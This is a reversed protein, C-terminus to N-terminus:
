WICYGGDVLVDTGTIFSALDSALFVVLGGIEDMSGFRAMPADKAVLDLMEQPAGDHIGSYMYGPSISNVRINHKVFDAAFSKTLHVVGAKTTTYCISHRLGEPMRNVIHGSMSATNVIAGGRGSDRMIQAAAQNVLYMGNLNIDVMKKWSEYPMDGNDDPMTIGANSHVADIVGFEKLTKDFLNKVSDPNSVDAQVALTKVNFKKGIYDANEQAKETRLDALM